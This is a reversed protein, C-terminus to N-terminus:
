FILEIEDLDLKLLDIEYIDFEDWFNTPIKGFDSPNEHIFFDCRSFIADLLIGRDMFSDNKKIYSQIQSHILSETEDFNWTSKINDWTCFCEGWVDNGIYCPLMENEEIFHIRQPTEINLLEYKTRQSYVVKINREKLLRFLKQASPSRDQDNRDILSVIVSSDLLATKM